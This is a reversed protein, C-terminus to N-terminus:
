GGSALGELLATVDVGDESGQVEALKLRGYEIELEAKAVKLEDLKDRTDQSVIPKDRWHPFRRALLWAAARWDREAHNFVLEVLKHESKALAEQVTVYFHCLLPSEGKRGRKMWRQLTDRHLGAMRAASTLSHGKELAQVIIDTREPTLKVSGKPRGPKGAM